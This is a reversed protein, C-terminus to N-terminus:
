AEFVPAPESDDPLEFEEVPAAMRFIAELNARVADKWEPNVTLKLIHASAEIYADLPASSAEM